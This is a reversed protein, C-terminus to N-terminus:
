PLQQHLCFMATFRHQNILDHITGLRLWRYNGACNNNKGQAATSLERRLFINKEACPIEEVVELDTLAERFNWITTSDPIDNDIYQLYISLIYQLFYKNKDFIKTEKCFYLYLDKLFNKPFKM